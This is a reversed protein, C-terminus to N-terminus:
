LKSLITCFVHLSRCNEASPLVKNILSTLPFHGSQNSSVSLISTCFGGLLYSLEGGSMMLDEWVRSGLAWDRRQGPFPIESLRVKCQHPHLVGELVPQLVLSWLGVDGGPSTWTTLIQPIRLWTIHRNTQKTRKCARVTNIIKLRTLRTPTDTHQARDYTIDDSKPPKGPKTPSETEAKKWM